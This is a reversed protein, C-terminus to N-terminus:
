RGHVLGASDSMSPIFSFLEVAAERADDWDAVHGKSHLENAIGWWLNSRAHEYDRGTARMRGVLPLSDITEVEIPDGNRGIIHSVKLYYTRSSLDRTMAEAKRERAELTKFDGELQLAVQHFYANADEGILKKPAGREFAM